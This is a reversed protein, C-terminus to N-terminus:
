RSRIAFTGAEWPYQCRLSCKLRGIESSTRVNNPNRKNIKIARTFAVHLIFASTKLDIAYEQVASRGFMEPIYSVMSHIVLMM